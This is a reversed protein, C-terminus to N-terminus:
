KMVVCKRVESYTGSTMRYLYVGSAMNSADLEAQYYGAQRYGDVLTKVERGLVDYMKLTVWGGVPLQYRIVTAPNFPNPFNQELGFTKPLSYEIIISKEWTAGSRDGIIFKLTDTSSEVPQTFTNGIKPPYGVDFSFSVTHNEQPPVSEVTQIADKFTIGPPYEVVKVEIQEVPTTLAENAITLDIRNDKTNRCVNYVTQSYGNVALSLFVVVFTLKRNM